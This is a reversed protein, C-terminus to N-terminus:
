RASHPTQELMQPVQFAPVRMFSTPDGGMAINQANISAMIVPTRPWAAIMRIFFLM